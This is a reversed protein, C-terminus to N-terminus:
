MYELRVQYYVKLESHQGSNELYNIKRELKKRIYEM